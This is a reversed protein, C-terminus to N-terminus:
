KLAKCRRNRDEIAVLLRTAAAEVMEVNGEAVAGALETFGDSIAQEAVLLAESSVPDSYRLAEYVRNCAAKTGEDKARDTLSRAELIMAKIFYTQEKTKEGTEMAMEGAASAKIVAIANAVMFIMCILGGIWVPLSSILMCGGGVIFSLILGTYSIRILPLNFFLEDLTEAKFAYWTCLMQVLFSLTVFSYGMWFSPTYKECVIWGPSVFAIANFLILLALWFAAYHQFGKKM